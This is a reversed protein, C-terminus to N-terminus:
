YPDAEPYFIEVLVNKVSRHPVVMYQEHKRFLLLDNPTILEFISWVIFGDEDTFLNRDADYFLGIVDPEEM